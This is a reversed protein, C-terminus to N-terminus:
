GKRIQRTAFHKRNQFIILFGVASQMENM